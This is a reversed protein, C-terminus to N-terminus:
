KEKNNLEKQAILLLVLREEKVILKEHYYKFKKPNDIYKQRKRLTSNFDRTASIVRKDIDDKEM